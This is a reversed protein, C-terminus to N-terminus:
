KVGNWFEKWPGTNGKLLDVATVLFDQIELDTIKLKIFLM